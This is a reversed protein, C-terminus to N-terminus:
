RRKRKRTEHKENDKEGVKKDLKYKKRLDRELKVKCTQCTQYIIIRKKCSKVAEDVQIARSANKGKVFPM